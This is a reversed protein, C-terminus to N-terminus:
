ARQLARELPTGPGADRNTTEGYALRLRYHVANQLKEPGPQRPLDGTIKHSDTKRGVQEFPDRPADIQEIADRGRAVPTVAGGPQGAPADVHPARREFTGGLREIRGAVAFSTRGVCSSIQPMQKHYLVHETEAQDRDVVDSEQHPETLLGATVQDKVEQYQTGGGLGSLSM